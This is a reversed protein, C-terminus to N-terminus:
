RIVTCIKPDHNLSREISNEAGLKFVVIPMNMESAMGLASKDMVKVDPLKLADDLRLTEFKKANPNKEPDANYVGAVKTAKFVADCGLELSALVAASDTTMFPRSTGGGLVLVRGKRLHNIARRPTYDDVAENISIASLARTELHSSNFVDSIVISNMITGLMGVYDGDVRNIGIEGLQGGRALNGAGVVITIELNSYKLKANKIKEAIDKITAIDWGGNENGALVEGSIKLIIRKYNM